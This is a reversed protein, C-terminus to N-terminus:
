SAQIGVVPHFNMWMLFAVANTIYNIQRRAVGNCSMTLVTAAAFPHRATEM